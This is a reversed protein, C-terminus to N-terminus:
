GWVEDLGADACVQCVIDYMKDAIGQAAQSSLDEYKWISRCERRIEDLAGWAKDANLMREATGEGDVNTDIEITLKM